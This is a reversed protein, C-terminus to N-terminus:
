RRIGSRNRNMLYDECHIEYQKHDHWNGDILKADRIYIGVLRGGYKKILRDYTKEIPNGIYVGFKLKNYKYKCFIDDIAQLLDRAFVISESFNIACLGSVVGSRQNIGYRIYGIVENKNSLSVFEHEGWSGNSPNYDESYGDNVFMFRDMYAIEWFKVKLEKAFLQAPKIM